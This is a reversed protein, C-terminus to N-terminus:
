GEDARDPVKERLPLLPASLDMSRARKAAIFGTFDFEGPSGSQEGAKLAARLKELREGNTDMTDM